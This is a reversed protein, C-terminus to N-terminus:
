RGTKACSLYLNCIGSAAEVNLHGNIIKLYAAMLKKWHHGSGETEHRIFQKIRGSKPHM